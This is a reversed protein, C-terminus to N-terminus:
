KGHPQMAKLTYEVFQLDKAFETLRNFHRETYPLLEEVTRGLGKPQHDKLLVQELVIEIVLQAARANRSNTNWNSAHKLLAEKHMDSLSQVTERLGVDQSRLVENVIRLSLLPKELRLALKLAKLMKRQRLLNMLEQEQLVGEQAVKLVEAKREVTVDRWRILQSDSGGSYFHAGSGTVALTWIRGEHQDLTTACDSTKINWVKILGDSGASLIQMGRSIFEGRLISSEDCDFSKLCEGAMSWLRMTCDASTTLLVKDEPAFRVCWIGRRHGRLTAVLSLDAANWVKATKDQSATAIFNDLPSIAVCNIDKDHAVQTAVCSLEVKEGDGVIKWAKLCTDQSASACISSNHGMAVSGVSATHKKAVAVCRVRLADGADVLWLRISKDKSSSLLYNKHAALSMVTETHGKLIVCNMSTTDYLKIDPSNSAVALFRDKKGVFALDLIEDSFGILQRACFFTKVNHILVNHDASVVALQNTSANYKLQVIALGGEEEAKSVYSTEQTYLLKGGTMEWVKVLGSEGGIALYVRGSEHPINNPLTCTSPLIVGGEITEYVPIVQSPSNHFM